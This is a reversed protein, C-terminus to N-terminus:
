SRSPTKVTGLVSFLGLAAVLVVGMVVLLSRPGAGEFFQGITWPVTMKGLGLGVFYLATALSTTGIRQGILALTTPVIAALSLGLGLTGLWLVWALGPWVLVAAVSILCGVLATAVITQPKFRASAPVALFRGVTIAAWFGSAFYAAGSEDAMGLARAYSPIWGGFSHEVGAYLFFFLATLAVLALSGRPLSASAQGLSPQPSPVVLLWAAVPLVLLAFLRYFWAVDGTASMALAIGVPALLAGAGFFFHLANMYPGAHDTHVWLLLTNAGVEITGQAVGFFFFLLTLLWLSGVAPILVAMGAMLVLVASVVWHGPLRHFLLGAALSGLLYGFAAAPFLVAAQSLTSGTHEALSPLAPGLAAVGMGFVLFSGFYGITQATRTRRPLGQKSGTGELIQAM